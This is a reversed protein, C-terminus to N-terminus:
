VSQVGRAAARADLEARNAQVTEADLPYRAMVIAGLAILLAPLLNTAINIGLLQHAGAQQDARYDFLGMIFLGLAAGLGSAVKTALSAAAYATGDNRIATKLEGHDVADPIMSLMIPGGFCTLAYMCSLITVAVANTPPCLFLAVPMVVAAVMSWIVVPKKGFRFALRPFVILGVTYSIGAGTMIVALLHPANM